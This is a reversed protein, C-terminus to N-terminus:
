EYHEALKHNNLGDCYLWVGCQWVDCWRGGFNIQWGTPFVSKVSWEEKDIVTVEELREMLIIGSEEM